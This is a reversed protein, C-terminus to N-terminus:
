NDKQIEKRLFALGKRIKRSVASQSMNYKEGLKKQSIGDIFHMKVFRHQLEDEELLLALKEKVYDKVEITDFEECEYRLINTICGSAMKENNDQSDIHTGSFLEDRVSNGIRDKKRRRAFMVYHQRMIFAAFPVFGVHTKAPNYCKVAKIWGGKLVSYVDEKMNEKYFDNVYKNFAYHFLKKTKKELLYWCYEDDEEQIIKVLDENNCHEELFDYYGLIDSDTNYVKELKEGTMDVQVM